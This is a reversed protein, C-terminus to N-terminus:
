THVDTKVDVLRDSFFPQRSLRPIPHWFPDRSHTYGSDAETVEAEFGPWVRLARTSLSDDESSYSLSSPCLDGPATVPFGPPEEGRLERGDTELKCDTRWCCFRCAKACAPPADRGPSRAPFSSLMDGKVSTELLTELSPAM